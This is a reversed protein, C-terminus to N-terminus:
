TPVEARVSSVEGVATALRRRLQEAVAQEAQGLVADIPADTRVVWAEPWPDVRRAMVALVEETADSADPVHGRAALRADAVELPSECHLRVLDAGTEAALEAAARREAASTWSADLLVSWGRGLLHRARGLMEEYVRAVAEPRYLGEGYAARADAEHALGALDKRIEDSRLLAYGLRDSLGSAVTSKGTGPLGGVLLLVVRAQALHDRALAHLRRAEELAPTHGQAARLCAVKTRVHARYAVYHHMLSPPHHGGAFEVYWELFRRGEEPRGLRELDMALFAVDLLVDEFRYRDDFELCDLIRPGDDLCFIDEALLDGHGDRVMGAAIREDFLPERGALFREALWRVEAFPQAAVVQPVHRQITTLNDRWNARVADRTAMAAIDARTRSTEVSAHLAAIRRAVTRLCATVDEGREVLLSMRREDPMRRMAIVHDVLTGSPDLVDLVGLYVDPALRRNLTVERRCAAERAERTSFDLFGLSVPKKIKYARDGVFLVTACHTEAVAAPLSTGAVAPAIGPHEAALTSLPDSPAAEAVGM